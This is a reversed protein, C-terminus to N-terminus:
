KAIRQGVEDNFARKLREVRDVLGACLVDPSLQALEEDSLAAFHARWDAELQPNFIDRDLVSIAKLNLPEPVLLRYEDYRQGHEKTADGPVMELQCPIGAEILADQAHEADGAHNSGPAATFSCACAAHELWDEDVDAFEEAQHEPSAPAGQEEAPQRRAIEEEYCQRAVDTLETPDLDELEGDSLSAYHRRLDDSTPRVSVELWLSDCIRQRAGAITRM